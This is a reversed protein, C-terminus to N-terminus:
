LEPDPPSHGQRCFKLIAPYSGDQRNAAQRPPSRARAREASAERRAFCGTHDFFQFPPLVQLEYHTLLKGFRCIQSLTYCPTKRSQRSRGTAARLTLPRPQAKPTRDRRRKTITACSGVWDSAANSLSCIAASTRSVLFCSFM